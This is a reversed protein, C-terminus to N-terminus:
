TAMPFLSPTRWKSFIPFPMGSLPFLMYSAMSALFYIVCDLISHTWCLVHLTQDPSSYSTPLSSELFPCQSEVAFPTQAMSLLKSTIRHTSPFPWPVLNCSVGAFGCCVHLSSLISHPPPLRAPPPPGLCPGPLSVTPRPEQHRGNGPAETGRHNTFKPQSSM